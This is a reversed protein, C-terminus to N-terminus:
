PNLQLLIAAIAAAAIDEGTALEGADVVSTSGTVNGTNTTGVTVAGGSADSSSVGGNGSDATDNRQASAAGVFASSAIAAIALGSMFKKM